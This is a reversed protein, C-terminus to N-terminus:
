RPRGGAARAAAIESPTRCTCGVFMKGQSFFPATYHGCGPERTCHDLLDEASDYEHGSVPCKQFVKGNEVRVTGTDVLKSRENGLVCLRKPSNPLMRGFFLLALRQISIGIHRVTVM